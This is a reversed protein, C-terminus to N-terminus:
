HAVRRGLIPTLENVQREVLATSAAELNLRLLPETNSMRVNCWWSGADLSVGDLETCKADSYKSKLAAIAGPKDACEFNIEGSQQYRQYPRIIESLPERRSAVLNAVAIFARVGSDTNFMDAFYFHGSLEGGIPAATDALREKMFVHGVRSEVPVGGGEIIAERVSRSSRLDYVIAAGPCQVLAQTALAALLLDCGVPTGREDVIMCRDADGDFCVGFDLSGRVVAERVSALNAEVLPNPEHVFEGSSNDFNIREVELGAVSDFVKGFATGAMGNSADVAIRLRRSGDLVSSHLRRLLHDRYEIWLDVFEERGARVEADGEVAAEAYQQVVELGSGSGVPKAHARSVKFGNYHAPNHSATVQVGGACQLHNIAFYVMPTDVMGVDIVTAGFDRIGQKLANAMSPSSKRMDRGVVIHRMSPRDDGDRAVRETLYRAVGQGVRWAVHEDLPDPYTARIDYAKFVKSLM